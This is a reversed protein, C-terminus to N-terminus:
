GLDLLADVVRHHVIGDAVRGVLPVYVPAPRLDHGAASPDDHFCAFQLRRAAGSLEERAARGARHGGGARDVSGGALEPFQDSLVMALCRFIAEAWSPGSLLASERETATELIFFRSFSACPM